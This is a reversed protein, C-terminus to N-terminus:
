RTQEADLFSLQSIEDENSDNKFSGFSRELEILREPPILKRMKPLKLHTRVMKQHHHKNKVCRWAPKNGWTGFEVKGGCNACVIIGNKIRPQDISRTYCDPVVCKWYYPDDRGESAVMESGCIPCKPTGGDYEAIMENLRAIRAYENVVSKSVRREMIEQTNSFSLPNLSGSWIITDDIIVLKEHMGQKHVVITGWTELTNELLRYNSKDRKGREELPKTIVFVKVGQEAASLLTIQIESIRNETIFPSYIVIRSKASSIDDVLLPYFDDQTVIIQTADNEVRGKSVLRSANAARTLLGHPVIDLANYMKYNERLYPIFTNGLFANKSLRENYSFDGVLILRNRVRTIGVNLLRKTVDDNEAMFLGVRWHPDDNVLDFIVVEAESGQFAHITGARVDDELGSENIIKNLFETHPRYPSEIIIRDPTGAERQPRNKRLLIQCIDVCLLASLFNLRSSSNGRRVSTVWANLPGTDVLVVPADAQWELNYWEGFREEPRNSRSSILLGGYFMENPISAIDSHMRHQENLKILNESASERVGSVEFIDKGLWKLAMEEESLVIPPLQRWDGVVVANTIALSAAVWIAPIPAMSAEDIIITDYGRAQITDRLYARTLTTAVIDAESIVFEEIKSLIDEIQRIEADIEVIRESSLKLKSRSAQIDIHKVHNEIQSFAEEISAYMESIPARKYEGFGLNQLVELRSRFTRAVDAALTEYTRKLLIGQNTIIRLEEQVVEEKRILEDPDGSFESKFDSLEQMLLNKSTECGALDNSMVSIRKSVEVKKSQLEVLLGRQESPDPLRRWSRVIWNVSETEHLLAEAHSADDIIKQQEKKAKALTETIELIRADLEAISTINKRADLAAIRVKAWHAADAKVSLYRARADELEVEIEGLRNKQSCMEDLDNRASFFWDYLEIEGTLRLIEGKCSELESGLAFLRITMAESRRSVHTELLLNPYESALKPNKPEGVRLIKGAEIVEPNVQKALKLLAEDVATNTHSVMLLSRNARLLHFGIAGITTTKGTGPPGWIFTLNRSLSSRLADLQRPNLGSNQLELSDLLVETVDVNSLIRDGTPNNILSLAEIREILKRLLFTLNSVLQGSSIFDGLNTQSSLIISMGDISLITVETPKKGPIHLEGPVDDPLNIVNELQFVYQFSNAINAIRRGSRLGIGSGFANARAAKIEEELATRFEELRGSLTLKEVAKSTIMNGNEVM